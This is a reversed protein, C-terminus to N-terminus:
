SVVFIQLVRKDPGSLERGRERGDVLRTKKKRQTHTRTAELESDWILSEPLSRGGGGWGVGVEASTCVRFHPLVLWGVAAHTAARM